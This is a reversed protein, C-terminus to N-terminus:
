TRYCHDASAFANAIGAGKAFATQASLGHALIIKELDGRHGLCDDRCGRKLQDFLALQRKVRREGGQQWFKGVRLHDLAKVLIAADAQAGGLARDRQAM